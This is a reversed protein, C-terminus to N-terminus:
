VGPSPWSAFESGMGGVSPVPFVVVEGAGAEEDLLEVDEFSEAPRNGPYEGVPAAAMRRALGFGLADQLMIVIIRRIVKPIRVMWM